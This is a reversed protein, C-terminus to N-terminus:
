EAFSVPFRVQANVVDIVAFFGHESVRVIVLNREVTFFHQHLDFLVVGDDVHRFVLEFGLIVLVLDITEVHLQIPTSLPALDIELAPSLHTVEEDSGRHICHIPLRHAVFVGRQHREHIM